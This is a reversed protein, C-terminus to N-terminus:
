AAARIDALEDHLRALLLIRALDSIDGAQRLKWEFASAEFAEQFHRCGACISEKHSQRFLVCLSLKAKSM